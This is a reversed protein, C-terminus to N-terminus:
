FVCQCWCQQPFPVEARSLNMELQALLLLPVCKFVQCQYKCLADSNDGLTPGPVPSGVRVTHECNCGGSCARACRRLRRTLAVDFTVEAAAKATIRGSVRTSGPSLLPATSLAAGRYDALVFSRAHICPLKTYVYIPVSLNQVVNNPHFSGRKSFEM